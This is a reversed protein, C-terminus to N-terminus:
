LQSDVIDNCADSLIINAVKFYAVNIVYYSENGDKRSVTLALEAKLENVHERVHPESYTTMRALKAVSKEGKMLAKIITNRVPNAFIEAVSEKTVHKYSAYTIPSVYFKDGVISTVNNDIMDSCRIIYRNLFSVAYDQKSLNLSQGYHARYITKVEESNIFETVIDEIVSKKKKHFSRMKQIIDEEYIILKDILDNFQYIFKHVQMPHEPHASSLFVAAKSTHELDGKIIAGINLEKEYPALYYHYAFRKFNEKDRLLKLVAQVTYDLRPFNKELYETMLTPNKSDYFYFLYLDEYPNVSYRSIFENYYEFVDEGYKAFLNLHKRYREKNFYIYTCYHADYIVGTDNKIEV